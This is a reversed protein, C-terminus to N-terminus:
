RSEKKIKQRAASDVQGARKKPICKLTLHLFSPIERAANEWRSVTQVAVGLVKALQSQSYGNEKRWKKLDNPTM